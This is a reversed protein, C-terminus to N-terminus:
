GAFSTVFLYTANKVGEIVFKEPCIIQFGSICFEIVIQQPILQHKQHLKKLKFSKFFIDWYGAYLSYWNKAGRHSVKAM